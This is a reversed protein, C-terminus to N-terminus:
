QGGTRRFRLTVAREMRALLHPHGRGERTNEVEGDDAAADVAGADRAVGGPAAPRHEQAFLAIEAPAVEAAGGLQDMAPQAVEFM